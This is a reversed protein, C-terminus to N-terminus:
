DDWTLDEGLWDAFAQRAQDLPPVLWVRNGKTDRGKVDVGVGALFQALAKMSFRKRPYEAELSTLVNGKGDGAQASLESSWDQRLFGIAVPDGSQLAKFWWNPTPELSLVKQAASGETKPVNGYPTWDGLDMSLLDHLM